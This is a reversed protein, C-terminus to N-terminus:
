LLTSLMTALYFVLLVFGVVDSTLNADKGVRCVARKHLGNGIVLNELVFPEFGRSLERLKPGGDLLIKM